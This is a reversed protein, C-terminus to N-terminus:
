QINKRLRNFFKQAEEMDKGKIIHKLFELKSIVKELQPLSFRNFLISALLYDDESLLGKAIKWHKKFTSGPVASTNMCAAFVMTSVFPLTLSYAIIQDHEDFTYEFLNLKLGNFFDKFFQAGEQCSEKIIIANEQNLHKINAFTPGFMPHVSAFPFDNKRYYSPIDGKVSAVDSLICNRPLFNSAKEFAEVTNQLSVANILFEPKFRRLDPYGTLIYAVKIKELRSRNLDYVCIEHDRSLEKILWFGMHGAGLVAIRM